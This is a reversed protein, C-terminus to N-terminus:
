KIIPKSIMITNDLAKFNKLIMPVGLAPKIQPLAKATMKEKM